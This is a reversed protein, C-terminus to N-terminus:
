PLGGTCVLTGDPAYTHTGGCGYPVKSPMTSGIFVLAVVMVAVVLLGVYFAKVAM